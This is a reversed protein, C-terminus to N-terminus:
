APRPGIQDFWEPESPALLEGRRAIPQLAWRYVIDSEIWM